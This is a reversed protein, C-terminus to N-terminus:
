ISTTEPFLDKEVGDVYVTDVGIKQPLVAATPTALVDITELLSTFGARTERINHLAEIYHFSSANGGSSLIDKVDKGYLDLKRALRERHVYNSESRAIIFNNDLTS